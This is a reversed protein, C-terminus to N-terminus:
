SGSGLRSSGSGLRSSGSGPRSSGARLASVGTMIVPKAVGTRAQVPVRAPAQTVRSVSM